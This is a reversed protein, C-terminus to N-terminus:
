GLILPLASASRAALNPLKADDVAFDTLIIQGEGTQVLPGNDTIALVEGHVGNEKAGRCDDPAAIEADNITLRAGGIPTHAQNGSDTFCRIQGRIGKADRSWDILNWDFGSRLFSGKSLDQKRRPATGAMIAPLHERFAMWAAESLKRSLTPGTDDHTIPVSAHAIVDGADIGPNLYHLATWATDRGLYLYWFSPTMGRGEPLKSPHINVGGLTPIDLLVPKFIAAYHMSVLLDPKATRMLNLFAPTPQAVAENPPLYLPLLHKSAVGIVTEEPTDTPRSPPSTVVAVVEHGQDILERLCLAGTYGNIVTFVRM